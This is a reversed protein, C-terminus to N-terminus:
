AAYTEDVIEDDLPSEESSVVSEGPESQEDDEAEDLPLSFGLQAMGDLLHEHVEENVDGL